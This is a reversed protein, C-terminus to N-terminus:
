HCIKQNELIWMKITLLLRVVYRGSDNRSHTDVFHNECREEDKSLHKKSPISELEWFREVTKNLLKNENSNLDSNIFFSHNNTLINEPEYKGGVIWGLMTEQFIPLSPRQIRNSLLIDYFVEAGLIVDIPKSTNFYPDSLVINRPINWQSIKISRQPLSDSIKNVILFQLDQTYKTTRSKINSKVGESILSVNQNLSNVQM